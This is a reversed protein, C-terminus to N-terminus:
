LRDREYINFKGEEGFFFRLRKRLWYLCTRDMIIIDTRCTRTVRLVTILYSLSATQYVHSPPPPALWRCHCRLSPTIAYVICVTANVHFHYSKAFQMLFRSVVIMM